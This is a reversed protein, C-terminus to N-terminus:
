TQMSTYVTYRFHNASSFMRSHDVIEGNVLFRERNISLSRQHYARCRPPLSFGLSLCAMGTCHIVPSCNNKGWKTASIKGSDSFRADRSSDACAM